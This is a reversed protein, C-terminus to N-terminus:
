KYNIQVITDLPNESYSLLIAYQVLLIPHELSCKINAEGKEDYRNKDCSFPIWLPVGELDYQSWLWFRAGKVGEYLKGELNIRNFGTKSGESITLIVKMNRDEIVFTKTPACAVLLLSAIIITWAFLLKKMVLRWEQIIKEKKYM